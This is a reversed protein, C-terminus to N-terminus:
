RGDYKKGDLRDVEDFLALCTEILRDQKELLADTLDQDLGPEALSRYSGRLKKLEEVEARTMVVVPKDDAM